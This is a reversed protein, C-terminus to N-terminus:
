HKSSCFYQSVCGVILTIDAKAYVDSNPNNKKLVLQMTQDINCM